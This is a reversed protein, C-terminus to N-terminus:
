DARREGQLAALFIADSLYERRSVLDEYEGTTHTRKEKREATLMGYGAGRTTTGNGRVSPRDARGNTTSDLEQLASPHRGGVSRTCRLYGRVGSKTPADKHSSASAYGEGM